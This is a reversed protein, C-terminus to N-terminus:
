YEGPEFNSTTGYKWKAKPSRFIEKLWKVARFLRHKFTAIYKLVSIKEPDQILWKEKLLLFLLPAITFHRLVMKEDFYNNDKILYGVSVKKAEVPISTTTFLDLM